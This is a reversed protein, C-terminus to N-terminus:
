PRSFSSRECLRMEAEVLKKIKDQLGAVGRFPNMNVKGALVSFSQEKMLRNFSAQYSCNPPELGNPATTMTQVDVQRERSATNVSLPSPLKMGRLDRMPTYFIGEFASNMPLAVGCKLEIDSYRIQIGSQRVQKLLQGGTSQLVVLVADPYDLNHYLQIWETKSNHKKAFVKWSMFITEM